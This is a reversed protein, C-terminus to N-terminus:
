HWRLLLLRALKPELVIVVQLKIIIVAIVQQRITSHNQYRDLRRLFYEQLYAGHSEQSHFSACNSDQLRFDTILLM